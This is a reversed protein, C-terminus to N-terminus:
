SKKALQTTVATDDWPIEDKGYSMSQEHGKGLIAIIDGSSATNLAFRIAERRDAISVVKDHNESLQEKMQRIISWVDETRPDEATFVALDTLETAIKGMSPRKNRDRLGACGFVVIVKGHKKKSKQQKQLETLVAQLGQPTHAFDILVKYPKDLKLWQMRGPAHTFSQVAKVFIEDPIKLFQCIQYVLRANQQNYAEPFRASVAERVVKSLRDSKSFTRLQKGKAYTALLSFSQDDANLVVNKAQKLLLAKAGVYNQYTLHYDLHEFNINTIAAIEPHIGWTRYQYLGHSTTELVLYEYHKQVLHSMFLYLDKPQPATVHLGSDNSNKDIFLGVTSVLGSKLKATVLVHQLLTSSTTKGDTGTIALIKLKKEPFKTSFQAPLGQLLGTKVFHFPRKLFYLAQALM